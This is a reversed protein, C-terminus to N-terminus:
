FLWELLLKLGYLLAALLGLLIGAAIREQLRRM